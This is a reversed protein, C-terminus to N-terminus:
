SKSGTVREPVKYYKRMERPSSAILGFIPSKLALIEFSSESM